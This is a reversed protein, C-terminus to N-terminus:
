FFQLIFIKWLKELDIILEVPCHDSGFINNNIQADVISEKKM